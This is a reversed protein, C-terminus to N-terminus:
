IQGRKALGVAMGTILGAIIFDLLAVAVNGLLWSMLGVFILVAVCGTLWARHSVSRM